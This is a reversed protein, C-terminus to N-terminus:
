STVCVRFRKKVLPIKSKNGDIVNINNIRLALFIAAGGVMLRRASIESIAGV